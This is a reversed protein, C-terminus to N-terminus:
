KKEDKRIVVKIGAYMSALRPVLRMPKEVPKGTFSVPRNSALFRNTIREM